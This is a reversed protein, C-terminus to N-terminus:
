FFFFESAARARLLTISTRWPHASPDYIHFTLYSYEGLGKVSFKVSGECVFSIQLKQFLSARPALAVASLCLSWYSLREM